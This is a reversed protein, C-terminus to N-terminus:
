IDASAYCLYEWIGWMFVFPISVLPILVAFMEFILQASLSIGIASAFVSVIITLLCSVRLLRKRDAALALDIHRRLLVVLPVVVLMTIIVMRIGAFINWNIAVVLVLAPTSITLILLGYFVKPERSFNRIPM